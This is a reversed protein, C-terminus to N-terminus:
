LGQDAQRRLFQPVTAGRIRRPGDKLVASFLHDAVRDPLHHLSVTVDDSYLVSFYGVAGWERTGRFVLKRIIHNKM